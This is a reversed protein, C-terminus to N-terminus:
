EEDVKQSRRIMELQEEDMEDLDVEIFFKGCYDCEPNTCKYEDPTIFGSMSTAQSLTPKMCSPCLKVSKKPKRKFLSM